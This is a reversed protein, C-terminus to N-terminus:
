RLYLISLYRCVTLAYKAMKKDFSNEGAYGNTAFVYIRILVLPVAVGIIRGYECQLYVITSIPLAFSYDLSFDM